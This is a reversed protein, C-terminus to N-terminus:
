GAAAAPVVTEGQLRVSVVRSVGSDELTVGYLASAATMTAHNHTILIFQNGQAM